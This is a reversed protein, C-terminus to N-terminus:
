IKDQDNRVNRMPHQESKKQKVENILLHLPMDHFIREVMEQKLHRCVM